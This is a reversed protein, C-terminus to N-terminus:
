RAIERGWRETWAPLNRALAATDPFYMAEVIKGYPVAKALDDPLTVTKNTPGAFQKEAFCM